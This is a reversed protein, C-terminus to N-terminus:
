LILCSGILLDIMTWDHFDTYSKGFSGDLSIERSDVQSFKKGRLNRVKFTTLIDWLGYLLYWPHSELLPVGDLLSISCCSRISDKNWWHWRLWVLVQEKYSNKDLNLFRQYKIANINYQTSCIGRLFINQAAHM